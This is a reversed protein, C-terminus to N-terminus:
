RCVSGFQLGCEVGASTGDARHRSSSKKYTSEKEEIELVAFCSRVLIHVAQIEYCDRQFVSESRFLEMPM